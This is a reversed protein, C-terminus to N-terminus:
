PSNEWTEMEKRKYRAADFQEEWPSCEGEVRGIFVKVHIGAGVDVM